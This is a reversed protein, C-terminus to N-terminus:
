VGENCTYYLQGENYDSGGNLHYKLYYNNQHANFLFLNNMWEFHIVTYDPTYTSMMLYLAVGEGVLVKALHQYSPGSYLPLKRIDTLSESNTSCGISTNCHLGEITAVM